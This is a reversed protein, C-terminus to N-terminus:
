WDAPEHLLARRLRGAVNATDSGVVDAIEPAALGVVYHLIALDEDAPGSGRPEPAASTEARLRAAVTSRLIHWAEATPNRSVLLDRWHVAVECLAEQVSDAAEDADPLWVRAYSLYRPRHLECFAAYEVSMAPEPPRARSTGPEEPPGAPRPHRTTM